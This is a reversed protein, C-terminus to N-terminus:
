NPWTGLQQIEYGNPYSRTKSLQYPRKRPPFFNLAQKRFWLGAKVSSSAWLPAKPFGFAQRMPEDMLAYVLKEGVPWLPKPLVWSLFLDRTVEALLRNLDSYAFNEREYRRNFAELGEYSAPIDKINMRRGVECWFYFSALKEHKSLKRWGYRANWRIPEFVFTTLVYLFEDNSIPYRGHMQNMRRLAARGESSDYGYFGLTSILLSTDDYRKQTRRTFEETSVLLESSKPVAFTRLLALELARQTDWPFDYAASLFVIRQHDRIPDLREIERLVAFKQVEKDFCM